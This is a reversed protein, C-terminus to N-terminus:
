QSWQLSICKLCNKQSFHFHSFNRTRLGQGTEAKFTKKLHARQFNNKIFCRSTINNFTSCVAEGLKQLPKLGFM